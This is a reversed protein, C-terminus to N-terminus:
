PTHSRHIPRFGQWCHAQIAHAVLHRKGTLRLVSLLYRFTHREGIRYGHVANVSALHDFVRQVERGRECIARRQGAHSVKSGAVRVNLPVGPPPSTRYQDHPHSRAIVALNLALLIERKRTRARGTFRAPAGGGAGGAGAGNAGFTSWDM